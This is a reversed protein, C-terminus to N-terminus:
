LAVQPHNADNIHHNRCKIGYGDNNRGDVFVGFIHECFDPYAGGDGVAHHRAKHRFCFLIFLLVSLFTAGSAAEREPNDSTCDAQNHHELQTDSNTLMSEQYRRM